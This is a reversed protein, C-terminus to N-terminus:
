QGEKLRSVLSKEQEFFKDNADAIKKPMYDIYQRTMEEYTHGLYDRISQISIQNDYFITAVTHRYDHARFIYKGNAIANEKCTKLMKARFTASLYPGGKKNKFIYENSSIEHKELYVKMIKYLVEPIPIKKYSKMKTQYVQMWYDNERKYYADGKLMCVESVRLGLCWLHLFMCRLQEPFLYLKRLIEFYVEQEVSRNNHEHIEKKLLCDIRFPVTSIYGRVEMFKYFHAIAYLRRNYQESKITKEELSIMYKKLLMADCNTVLLDNKELFIIFEKIKGGRQFITSVAEGTIGFEYKMYAQFYERNREKRVEMFSFSEHSKSKDARKDSFQFRELYWVTSKWNIKETQVFALKRCKAIIASAYSKIKKSREAVTQLFQEIQHLELLSIDEIKQEYCFDYFRKLANLNNRIIEKEEKLGEYSVIIQNLSDFIQKKLIESCKKEFDWILIETTKTGIFKAVIKSNPHYLLCMKENKYAWKYKQIGCLTTIQKAIDYQKVLDFVRVYERVRKATINKQLYTEYDQRLACNMEELRLIGNATLYRKLFNIQTKRKIQFSDIEAYLEQKKKEIDEHYETRHEAQQLLYVPM